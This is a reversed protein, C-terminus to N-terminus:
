MSTPASAGQLESPHIGLNFLKWNLNHKRWSGTLLGLKSLSHGERRDEPVTMGEVKLAVLSDDASPITDWTLEAHDAHPREVYATAFQETLPNVWYIAREGSAIVARQVDGLRFLAPTQETADAAQKLHHGTHGWLWVDKIGERVYWEHREQWEAFSLAAYQIEFAVRNVPWRVLVDAVREGNGLRAEVEVTGYDGCMAQAWRRVVEKANSHWVSEPAHGGSGAYHKFGDRRPRVSGSRHVLSLRRDGCEPMPCELNAAVWERLGVEGGRGDELFFQETPDHRYRAHVLRPESDLFRAIEDPDHIAM